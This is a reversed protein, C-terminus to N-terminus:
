NNHNSHKNHYKNNNGNNDDIAVIRLSQRNMNFTRIPVVQLSLM